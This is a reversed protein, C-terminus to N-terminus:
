KVFYKEAYELFVPWNPEVTHGSAHQRFAIEGDILATEQPPFDATSLGRAGLLEYVPSAHVGALFMGRADIWEGEIEPSGVSIFVPRPACLAVLEHADVPLDLPTLPGAYKIFNAAFWHYEGSSALNEVQEGFVRRLIKAGGAGSSGILGMAIRPEYALAVLAAKGYRSLGEIVVRSEDADPDSELYDMARSAGWAWARLSGWDDLTRRQGKNVLGIIGECLGAGNDAQVSTPVLIAYGWGKELVRQQWTPGPERRMWRMPFNWGFEIIVPVPKAMTQPVALTMQIDVTIDPYDSNDVHGVLQKRTIPYDGNLTDKEDVVEWTVAPTKEPVRGYVERDFDEFIEGKRQQWQAATKVPTGDKFTLPDPLSTYPTAKAEDRNAANPAEPNGSPGPRLETIGLTQMMLQHDEQSLRNIREREEPSWQAFIQLTILMVFSLTLASKRM